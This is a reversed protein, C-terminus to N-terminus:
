KIFMMKKVISLKSGDVTMINMRYLYFGSSIKVGKDSPNFEVEYFGAKRFENVLCSVKEGKIDYVEILVHADTPLEYGIRTSPNFPNPYNQLLVYKLPVKVNAEVINSYQFTGDNDNIRLRYFYKGSEMDSERFSYFRTSNSKFNSKISGVTEWEKKNIGKREIDFNNTNNETATQWNLKIERGIVAIGFSILEVPLAADNGVNFYTFDTFGSASVIYPDEITGSGSVFAHTQIWSTGGWRGIMLTSSVNFGSAEHGQLWGLKITADSGGVTNETITWQRNVVKDPYAPVFDFTNKVKVKFTDVTGTYNIIVPNYSSSTGIPFKVDAGQIMKNFILGGSNDTVVYSGATGGSVVTTDNIILDHNGLFLDGMLLKMTDLIQISNSLSVGSINNIVMTYVSSPLGNGTVQPSTGNYYYNAGPNYDRSGNVCVNGISDTGSIIGGPNGIYITGGKNLTFNCNGWVPYTGCKIACGENVIFKQSFNIPSSLTLVTGPGNMILSKKWSYSMNGIGDSYYSKYFDTENLLTIEGADSVVTDATVILNDIVLLGLSTFNSNSGKYAYIRITVNPNNNVEPFHYLEFSADNWNSNPAGTSNSGAIKYTAGNYSFICGMNGPSYSYPTINRFRVVIGKFGKTNVNFQYYESASIGPDSVVNQWNTGRLSRGRGNDGSGSNIVGTGSRIIPGSGSNIVQEVQNEFNNRNTNNEFDYFLIPVQPFSNNIFLFVFIFLYVKDM